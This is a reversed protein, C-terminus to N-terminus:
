PLFGSIVWCMGVASVAMLLLGGAGYNCLKQIIPLVLMEHEGTISEFVQKTPGFPM